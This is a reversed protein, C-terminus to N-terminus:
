RASSSPNPTQAYASPDLDVKMPDIQRLENYVEETEPNKGNKLTNSNESHYWVVDNYLERADDFAKNQASTCYSEIYAAAQAPEMTAAEALVNSMVATMSEEAQAWYARVPAGYVEYENQEVCFTTLGKIAYYPYHEVDFTGDEEVSQNRAYAESVQTCANSVPVFVGYICPGSCEWLVTSMETPLKPYVQMIHVSMATDTGIVRIDTRGTEDPSYPTGEYRNRMFEMTDRVSVQVM